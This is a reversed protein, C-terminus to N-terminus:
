AGKASGACGGDTECTGIGYIVTDAEITAPGVPRDTRRPPVVAPRSPSPVCLLAPGALSAASRPPGVVATRIRRTATASCREGLFGHVHHHARSSAYHFVVEVRCLVLHKVADFDIAGPRLAYKVTTHVDDLVFTEFWRLVQM